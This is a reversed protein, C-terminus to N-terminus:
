ETESDLGNTFSLLFVLSCIFVKKAVNTGIDIAINMTHNPVPIQCPALQFYTM